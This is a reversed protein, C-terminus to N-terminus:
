CKRFDATALIWKNFLIVTSSLSIWIAVYVAPHLGASAGAAKEADQTHVPLVPVAPEQREVEGSLREKESSM